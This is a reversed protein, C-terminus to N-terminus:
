RRIKVAGIRAPFSFVQIRVDESGAWSKLIEPKQGSRGCGKGGELRRHKGIITDVPPYSKKSGESLVKVSSIFVEGTCLM